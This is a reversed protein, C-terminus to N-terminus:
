FPCGKTGMLRTDRGPRPEMLEALEEHFPLLTCKPGQRGLNGQWPGERVRIRGQRALRM